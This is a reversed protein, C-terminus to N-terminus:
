CVVMAQSVGAPGLIMYSSGSTLNLSGFSVPAQSGANITVATTTANNSSGDGYLTFNATLSTTGLNQMMVTMTANSHTEPVCSIKQATIVNPTAPTPQKTALGGVWFYLGVAAIVAIAILLVVAVIPSIGKQM